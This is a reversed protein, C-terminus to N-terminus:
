RSCIHSLEGNVGIAEIRVFVEFESYFPIAPVDGANAFDASELARGFDNLV